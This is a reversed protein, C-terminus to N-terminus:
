SQKGRIHPQKFRRIGMNQSNSYEEFPVYQNYREQTILKLAEIAPRYNYSASRRILGRGLNQDKETGIGYYYMYGMAYLAKPDNHQVPYLLENFARSYYGRSYSVQAQEYSTKTASVCGSLILFSASFLFVFMVSQLPSKRVLAM